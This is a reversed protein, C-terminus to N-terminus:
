LKSGAVIGVTARNNTTADDIVEAILRLRLRQNSITRRGINFAARDNGADIM